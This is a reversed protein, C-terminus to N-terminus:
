NTHAVPLQTPSHAGPSFRHVLLLTCVHWAPPSQASVSVHEGGIQKPLAQASHEGPSVRQRFPAVCCVHVIAPRQALSGDQAGPTHMSLVHVTQVGPSVRQEPVVVTCVQSM